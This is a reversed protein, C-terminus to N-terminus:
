ANAIAHNKLFIYLKFVMADHCFYRLRANCFCLVKKFIRYKLSQASRMNSYRQYNKKRICCTQKIPADCVRRQGSANGNDHKYKAKNKKRPYFIECMTINEMHM